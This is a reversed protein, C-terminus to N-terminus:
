QKENNKNDENNNDKDKDEMFYILVLLLGRGILFGLIDYLLITKIKIGLLKEIITKIFIALILSILGFYAAIIGLDLIDDQFFYNLFGRMEEDGILFIGGYLFSFVIFYIMPLINNIIYPSTIQAVKTKPILYTIIGLLGIFFIVGSNFKFFIRRDALYKDDANVNEELKTKKLM